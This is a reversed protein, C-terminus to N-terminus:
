GERKAVRQKPQAVRAVALRAHLHCYPGPVKCPTRCFHFGRRGPEGVPWRCEGDGLSLIAAIATSGPPMDALALETLIRALAEDPHDSRRPRGTDRGSPLAVREGNVAAVYPRNGIANAFLSREDQLITVPLLDARTRDERGFDVIADAAQERM